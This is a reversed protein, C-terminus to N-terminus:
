QITVTGAPVWESYYKGDEAYAYARVAVDFSGTGLKRTFTATSASSTLTKGAADTYSIQYGEAKASPAVTFEVSGNAKVNCFMSAPAPLYRGLSISKPSCWTSYIRNGDEGVVYTRAKVYYTASELGYRRQTNSASWASYKADSFDADTAYAFVVGDVGEITRWRVVMTGAGEDRLQWIVTPQPKVFVTFTAEKAEWNDKAALSVTVTTSGYNVGRIVGEADITAIEENEVKYTLEGTSNTGVLAKVTQGLVVNVDSATLDTKEPEVAAKDLITGCVSCRTVTYKNGDITEVTAKGPKHDARAQYDNLSTFYPFTQEATYTKNKSDVYTAKLTITGPNCAYSNESVDVVEITVARPDVDLKHNNCVSCDTFARATVLYDQQVFNFGADNRDAAQGIYVTSDEVGDVPRYTDGNVKYGKVIKQNDKGNTGNFAVVVKGVFGFHVPLGLTNELDDKYVNPKNYKEVLQNEHKALPLNMHRRHLEKGCIACYTVADYSGKTICTSDVRNEEVPLMAEHPIIYTEDVHYVGCLNCYYAVKVYDHDADKNGVEIIEIDEYRKIKKVPDIYIKDLLWAYTKNAKKDIENKITKNILHDGDHEKTIPTRSAVGKGLHETYLNKGTKADTVVDTKSPVNALVYKKSEPEKEKNPCGAATCHVVEYYVFADTCHNNTIKYGDKTYVVTFQNAIDKGQIDIEKGDPTKRNKYDFEIQVRTEMHHAPVTITKINVPKNNVFTTVVYSGPVTCNTLEINETKFIERAPDYIEGVLNTALGTQATVQEYFSTKALIEYIDRTTVKKGCRSCESTVDIAYYGDQQDDVLVVTGDALLKTNVIPQAKKETSGDWHHLTGEKTEPNLNKGDKDLETITVPDKKVMDHGLADLEIDGEYHLGCVTCDRVVYASGKGECTPYTTIHRYTEKWSHNGTPAKTQVFPSKAGKFENGIQLSAELYYGAPNGCDGEQVDVVEADTKVSLFAEGDQKVLNYVCFPKDEAAYVKNDSATYPTDGPKVFVATSVGDRWVYGETQAVQILESEEAVEEAAIEEVAVVEEASGDSLEEAFAVSSLPSVCMLASLGLAILKKKNLKM